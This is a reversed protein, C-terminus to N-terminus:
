PFIILSPYAMLVEKGYTRGIGILFYYSIEAQVKETRSFVFPLFVFFVKFSSLGHLWIELTIREMLQLRETRMSYSSCWSM